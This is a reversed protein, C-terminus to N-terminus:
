CKKEEELQYYEKNLEVIKKKIDQAQNRIYSPDWYVIWFNHKVVELLYEADAELQAVELIIQAQRAEKQCEEQTKALCFPSALLAALILSKKM